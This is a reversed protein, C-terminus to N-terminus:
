SLILSMCHCASADAETARPSRAAAASCGGRPIHIFPSLGGDRILGTANQNVLCKPAEEPSWQGTIHPLSFVFAHLGSVPCAHVPRTITPNTFKPPRDCLGWSLSPRVRRLGPLSRLMAYSFAESTHSTLLGPARAPARARSRTPARAAGGKPWRGREPRRCRGPGVDPVAWQEGDAFLVASRRRWQEGASEAGESSFEPSPAM